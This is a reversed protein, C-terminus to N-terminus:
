RSLPVRAGGCPVDALTRGYRAHVRTSRDGCLPCCAVRRTARAALHLCAGEWWVREVRVGAGTGFFLTTLM